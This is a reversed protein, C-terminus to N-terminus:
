FLIFLQLTAIVETNSQNSKGDIKDFAVFIKKYQVSKRTKQGDPPLHERVPAGIDKYLNIIITEAKTRVEGSSHGLAENAFKM